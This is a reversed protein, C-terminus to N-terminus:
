STGKSVAGAMARVCRTCYFLDYAPPEKAAHGQVFRKGEKECIFCTQTVTLRVLKFTYKLM